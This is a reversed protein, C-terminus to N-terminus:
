PKLMSKLGVQFKICVYKLQLFYQKNLSSHTNHRMVIEKYLELRAFSLRDSNRQSKELLFNQDKETIENTGDTFTDRMM